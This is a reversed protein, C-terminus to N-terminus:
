RTHAHEAANMKASHSPDSCANAALSNQQIQEAKQKEINL